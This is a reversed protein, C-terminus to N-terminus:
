ISGITWTARRLVLVATVVVTIVTFLGGESTLHAALSPDDAMLVPAEVLCTNVAAHAIAVPWLSGSRLRIWGFFVGASTLVALFGPVVIWRSGDGNYATTLLLLPLHYLGQALGTVVSARRAPLVEVLRPLLYSRWGIEEGLVIVTLLVLSFPAEAVYGTLGDFHVVGIAWAAAFSASIVVVPVGIAAPWFRLGLHRLGLPHPNSPAHRYRAVLRIIGVVSAPVLATLLVVPGPNEATGPLILALVLTIAYTAGLFIGGERWPQRAARDVPSPSPLRPGADHQHVTDSKMSRVM